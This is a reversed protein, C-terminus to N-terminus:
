IVYGKDGVWINLFPIKKDYNWKVKKIEWGAANEIWDFVNRIQNKYHFTEDPNYDENNIFKSIDIDEGTRPFGEGNIWDIFIQRDGANYLMTKGWNIIFHIKM